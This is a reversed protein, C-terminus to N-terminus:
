LDNPLPTSLVLIAEIACGPRHGSGHPPAPGACEPCCGDSKFPTLGAWQHKQLLRRLEANDARLSAEADDMRGHDHIAFANFLCTAPSRV